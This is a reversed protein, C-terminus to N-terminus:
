GRHRKCKFDHVPHALKKPKTLKEHKGHDHEFVHYARCGCDATHVNGHYKWLYIYLKQADTPHAIPLELYGRRQVLEETYPDVSFVDPSVLPQTLVAKHEDCVSVIEINTITFPIPHQHSVGSRVDGAWDATIRLVCDCLCPPIWNATASM